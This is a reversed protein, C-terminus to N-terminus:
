AAADVTDEHTRRITIRIEDGEFEVIVPGVFYEYWRLADSDGPETVYYGLITEPDDDATSAFTQVPQEATSPDGATITWDVVALTVASYGPFTAEDFDGATLAQIQEETLGDEVDNTFLRLDYVVDCIKALDATEGVDPIRLVM